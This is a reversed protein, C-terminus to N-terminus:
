LRLNWVKLVKQLKHLSTTFNCVSFNSVDTFDFEEKDDMNDVKVVGQSVWFYDHPNDSIQLQELSEPNGCSM